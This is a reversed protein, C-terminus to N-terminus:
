VDKYSFVDKITRFFSSTKAYSDFFKGGVCTKSATDCIQTATLNECDSHALCQVCVKPSVATDCVTNNAENECETNSSCEDVSFLILFNFNINLSHSLQCYWLVAKVM